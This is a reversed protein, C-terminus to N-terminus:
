KETVTSSEAKDSELQKKDTKLIAAVVVAFGAIIVVPSIYLAIFGKELNELYMAVFGTLVMSVGILMLTYNSSSFLMPQEPEGKRRRKHKRAQQRTKSM